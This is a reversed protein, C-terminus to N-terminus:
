AALFVQSCNVANVETETVPLGPAFLAFVSICLFKIFELLLGAYLFKIFELSLAIYLFKIVESLLKHLKHLECSKHAPM